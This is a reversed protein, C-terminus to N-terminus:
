VVTSKWSYIIHLVYVRLINYICPSECWYFGVGLDENSLICFIHINNLDRNKSNQFINGGKLGWIKLNKHPKQVKDISVWMSLFHGLTIDVKSKRILVMGKLETKVICQTTILKKKFVNIGISIEFNWRITEWSNCHKYLPYIVPTSLFPVLFGGCDMVDELGMNGRFSRSYFLPNENPFCSKTHGVSFSM